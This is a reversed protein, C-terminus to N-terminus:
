GSKRRFQEFKEWFNEMGYGYFIRQTFSTRRDTKANRYILNKFREIKGAIFEEALKGEDIKATRRPKLRALM